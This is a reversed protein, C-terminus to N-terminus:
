KEVKQVDQQSLFNKLMAHGHDTLFSEPHFQVGHIPLFEHRMGMIVRDDDATWANVIFGEPLTDRDVILSHYRAVALSTPLGLFVGDGDHRIQSTKGHKVDHARMVKGGFADAICQHGLCVGLIPTKGAFARIVDNSIGAERPSCPGPSIVIYDPRMEEIDALSVEDNRVVRVDVALESFYQVLNFTFSDYNDIMLLVVFIRAAFINGCPYCLGVARVMM